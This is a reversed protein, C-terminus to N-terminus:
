QVVDCPVGDISVATFRIQNMASPKHACFLALCLSRPRSIPLPGVCEDDDDDDDYDDDDDDDYDDEPDIAMGTFWAVARPILKDKIVCGLEYDAELQEHLQEVQSAHPPSSRGRM